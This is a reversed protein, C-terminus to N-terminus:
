GMRTYFMLYILLFLSTFITNVVSFANWNLWLVPLFLMALQAGLYFFLGAKQWKRMKFVGIFSLLSLAAFMLFYLPTINDMSTINTLQIVLAKTRDFMLAAVSFLLFGALGGILSLFTSAVFLLPQNERLQQKNQKM